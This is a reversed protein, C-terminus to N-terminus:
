AALTIRKALRKKVIYDAVTDLWKIQNHHMTGNYDTYQAYVAGNTTITWDGPVGKILGAQKFLGNMAFGSLGFEKGIETALLLKYDRPAAPIEVFVPEDESVSVPVVSVPENFITKPLKDIGLLELPSRGTISKTAMDASTMLENGDLGFSKGLALMHRATEVFEKSDFGDDTNEIVPQPESAVLADYARIVQLNFKPSIWMAYAYVLEKVVFTGGLRGEMKVVPLPTTELKIENVLEVIKPSAFFYSPGHRKEGGSAKHLDNLCHRGELDQRIAISAITLEKM